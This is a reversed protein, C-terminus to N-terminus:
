GLLTSPPNQKCNTKEELSLAMVEMTISFLAGIDKLLREGNPEHQLDLLVFGKTRCAPFVEKAEAESESGLKELSIKPLSAIPVDEPFPPYAEFLQESAM